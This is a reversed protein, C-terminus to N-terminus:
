QGFLLADIEYVQFDALFFVTFLLHLDTFAVAEASFNQFAQLFAVDYHGFACILYFEGGSGTGDRSMGMVM